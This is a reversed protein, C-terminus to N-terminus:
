LHEALFTELEKLVRIRTESRSLWHDEGALKLLAYPRDFQKLARVMTESQSIPVVTDDAGHLLLIPARVRNAARAPSKEIVKVDFPSGIHDRWYALSDSEEGSKNEIYGIMDPLDSIGNISVACAYLEPTFAAGALAAYGGYSAGVICVRRPDALGQEILAKVGDTIDNQMVGGWERYGAKRHEEGFGTSGRFQPQLVAYGRTALFQAQWDFELIDRSEPGGHPMVVLPLKEPKAGPPITVYAPIDVGDRAKYSITQVEGLTVGALGPYEEGVVDARGARFDVLYYTPPVSPSEVYAIVRQADESRSYSYAYRGPFANAVARHRAEAQTDFWRRENAAGGFWAFVPAGSFRDRGVGVVDREPDDLLVKAGTGDLPISWAKSHAQGMSGVAVVATGDATLGYIALQGQDTQRHIERWESDGKALVRYVHREPEWESRVVPQGKGDVAWEDTYPTGQAISRGKGSRTDVEFVSSIWGSDKRSGSLRTGIERRQKADSYDLTWMTVMKPTPTRPALLVSGTVFRRDGGTMLLMRAAGGSVDAALTRGFEHLPSNRPNEETVSVEILLTEDDTWALARLKMGPDIALVRLMKRQGLDFIAVKQTPGTNDAWAILNGNPSLEVETTQPIRGFAEIPPPALAAVSPVSGILFMSLLGRAFISSSTTQM